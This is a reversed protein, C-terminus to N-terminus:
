VEALYSLLKHKFKIANETLESEDCKVYDNWIEVFEEKIEFTAREFSNQITLLGLDNSVAVYKDKFLGREIEIEVIIPKLLKVSEDGIYVEDLEVKLINPM